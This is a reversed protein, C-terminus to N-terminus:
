NYKHKALAAPMLELVAEQLIKCRETRQSSQAKLSNIVRMESAYLKYHLVFIWSKKLYADTCMRCLLIIFLKAQDKSSSLQNKFPAQYKNVIWIRISVQEILKSLM